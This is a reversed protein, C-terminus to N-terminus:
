DSADDTETDSSSSAVGNKAAAKVSDLYAQLLDPDDRQLEHYKVCPYEQGDFKYGNNALVIFEAETVEKEGGIMGLIRVFYQVAGIKPVKWINARCKNKNKKQYKIVEAPYDAWMDYLYQWDVRRSDKWKVQVKVNGQKDTKHRIMECTELDDVEVEDTQETDDIKMEVTQKKKSTKNKKSAASKKNTKPTIIECSETDDVEVEDTQEAEDMQKSKKKKSTKEKKKPKKSAASKLTERNRAMVADKEEEKNRSALDEIVRRQKEIERKQEQL